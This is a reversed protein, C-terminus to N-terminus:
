RITGPQRTIEGPVVERSSFLAWVPMHDSVRDAEERSLNYYTRLNLVGAEGTFEATSRHNFIINDYNRTEATNTKWHSLIAAYQNNMWRYSLFKGPEENMDGLLILDDEYPHQRMVDALISELARFEVSTQQPSTHTNILVFSFAEQPNRSRYRFHGVYPPRFMSRSYDTAVYPASILEIQDTDFVYVLQESHSGTGYAIRPSVAAQYRSGNANILRLFETITGEQGDRLEQIALIDFRRAIDVLVEVVEPRSMKTRGFTQINFSGVIISNRDQSTSLSTGGAGANGGKGANVTPNPELSGTDPSNWSGNPHTASFQSEGPPTCGLYSMVLGFLMTGIATWSTPIGALGSIMATRNSAKSRTPKSRSSRGRSAM